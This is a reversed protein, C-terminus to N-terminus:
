LKFWLYYFFIEKRIITSTLHLSYNLKYCIIHEKNIKNNKSFIKKPWNCSQELIKIFLKIDRYMSQLDFRLLQLLIQNVIKIYLAKRFFPKQNCYEINKCPTKCKLSGFKTNITKMKMRKQSTFVISSKLKKILIIFFVCVCLFHSQYKFLDWKNLLKM